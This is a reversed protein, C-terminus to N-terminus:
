FNVGGVLIVNAFPKTEGTRVILSARESMRKFEEHMVLTEPMPSLAARAEELLPVSAHEAESAMVYSEFVCEPLLTGLTDMFSPMGARLALDVLPVGDPIPLGADAIVIYQTHGLAALAGVIEAQLLGQKRM